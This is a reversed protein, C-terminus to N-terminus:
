KRPGHAIATVAKHMGKDDDRCTVTVEDGSKVNGLQKLADGEVPATSAKGDKGKLTITHAMMDTSMVTGSVMHSKDAFAATAMALSAFSLAVMLGTKSSM